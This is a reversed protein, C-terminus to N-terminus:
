KQLQCDLTYHIRVVRGQELPIVGSLLLNIRSLNEIYTSVSPGQIWNEEQSSGNLDKVLFSLGMMDPAFPRSMWVALVLDRDSGDSDKEKVRVKLYQAPSALEGSITMFNDLLINKKFDTIKCRYKEDMQANAFIPSILILSMTIFLIKFDRM